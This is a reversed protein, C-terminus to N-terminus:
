RFGREKQTGIINSVSKMCDLMDGSGRLSHYAERIQSASDGVGDSISYKAPAANFSYPNTADGSRSRKSARVTTEEPAENLHVGARNNITDNYKAELLKREFDAEAAKLKTELEANRKSACHAIELVRKIQEPHKEALTNIADQTDQNKYEPSLAVVQELVSDALKQIYSGQEKRQKEEQALKEKNLDAMQAELEQARDTQEKLKEHYELVKKMLDTKEVEEQANPEQTPKEEQAPQQTPTPETADSMASSGATPKYQCNDTVARVVGVNCGPRRPDKCLSVEVPRKTSTGDSYESYVHQLSLGTFVADQSSLDKGAFRAQVSDDTINGIVWKKGNGDTFQKEITGVQLSDEHELRVPLGTLDMDRAEQETIHFSKIGAEPHRAAAETDPLVNGLFRVTRSM